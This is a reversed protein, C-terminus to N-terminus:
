PFMSVNFYTWLYPSCVYTCIRVYTHIYTRVYVYMICMDVYSFVTKDSELLLVAIVCLPNCVYQNNNLWLSSGLIKTQWQSQFDIYKSKSSYDPYRKEMLVQTSAFSYM